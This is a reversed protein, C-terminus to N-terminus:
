EKGFVFRRWNQSLRSVGDDLSWEKVECIKRIMEELRGDMEDGAIHLDSEVLIGDDPMARIVDIAKASAATSLNIASSFSFFIDAPVDAQYYHGLTDPPGSYSHLCIRPPYPKPGTPESEVVAGSEAAKKQKKKGIVKKEHGKWTEKLTEYVVGHAQVGHVSVARGMEGALHLQAKLILKQHSMPVRYPSLPRGERGGPTAESDRADEREQSWPEPLRIPKDLGVEGILAFPYNELYSRTQDLFKSLSRPKPLARLFDLDEPKPTLASQYHQIQWEMSEVDIGSPVQGDDYMQYSFWPHWGFCPIIHGDLSGDKSLSKVGYQEAVQAVLAQDQGRTAMVTICRAKMSPIKPVLSMTDTPHCHADYVGLHWPFPPSSEGNRSHPMEDCM